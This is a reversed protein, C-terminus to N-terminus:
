IYREDKLKNGILEEVFQKLSLNNEACYIKAQQWVKIDIQIQKKTKM